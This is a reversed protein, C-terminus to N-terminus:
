AMPREELARVHMYLGPKNPNRTVSYTVDALWRQSDDLIAGAGYPHRWTLADLAYKAGGHINGIDRRRDREVFLLHVRCRVARKKDRMARWHQSQMAERVYSAVYEVNEIERANGKHRNSRYASIIENWGDMHTPQGDKDYRNTPVWVELSDPLSPQQLPNM